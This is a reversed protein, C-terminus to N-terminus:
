QVEALVTSGYTGARDQLQLCDTWEPFFNLRDRVAAPIFEIKPSASRMLVRTGPRSNKLILDWEERLGPVDHYALWDQHDLLVYHTYVGPNRKLFSAITTSHTSVRSTRERLLPLNDAVLYNPCCDVTYRGIAYVRWFYNDSMPLKTLVYEMKNRIYGSVGGPFREEILRIQPRPVGFMAMTFPQNLLWSNFANWLVTQLPDYIASQEDLNKAEVLREILPRLKPNAKPLAHLLVWAVRGVAGRYYFSPNACTAEFYYHKAKWYKTAYPQLRPALSDLLNRFDPRVGEGFVRFLEAHDGHEILAMKLQLLANQRPNVDVAHIEAPDDLLYDLANCGASTIMVVRSDPELALLERDLRPDEWCTNFMLTSGHVRDFLADHARRM